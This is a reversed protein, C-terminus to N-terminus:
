IAKISVKTTLTASAGGSSATYAFRARQAGSEVDWLANGAGSVAVSSVTEWTTGDITVQLGLTGVPTGTATWVAQVAFRYTNTIDWSATNISAVLTTIQAVTIVGNQTILAM